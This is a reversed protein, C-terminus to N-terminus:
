SENRVLLAVAYAVIGEERGVFGMKESTTAKISLTIDSGLISAMKEKMLPIHPAIKPQEAVITLDINGILFGEADLLSKVHRLLDLSCADKYRPDSPPFHYGIDGLAAAGLLADMIAHLAVDGDSHAELGYDSPVELGCLFLPKGMTFRHVDYGFGVSYPIKM